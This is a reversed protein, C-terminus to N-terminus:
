RTHIVPVVSMGPRLAHGPDAGPTISIRVPVRQVVKVYNGSANQAPLLSFRAGTAPAISEVEGEVDIGLADVGVTVPQGARIDALQTEKFNAVVWVDELDVIAFLPQGAQVIQGPEVNKRSVVGDTPAKVTTDELRIEAERLAAQAQAVRAEAAALRAKAASIQQPATGAARAAARAQTVASEAQAQRSEAVAVGTEAERAAAQASQVAADAVAAAAVAADFQQASIEEKEALGKLRDRDRRAREAKAQEETVRAKAAELRARAAEVDRESARAAARAAETSANARASENTSSTEVMPLGSTAGALAAEADALEAKAKALAVEYDRPDIRVLVEGKAVTANEKALVELVAGGVRPAIPTVHGEIQADDTSERGAARYAWVATGALVVIVAGIILPLRNRASSGSPSAPAQQEASM